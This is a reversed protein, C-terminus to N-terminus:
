PIILVDGPEMEEKDGFVDSNANYIRKWQSEDGYYTRALKYLTDGQQVRHARGSSTKRSKATSVKVVQKQSAVAIDRPGPITLKQGVQLSNQNSLKNAEYILIWKSEEGYYRKALTSLTDNPKVTHTTPLSISQTAPPAEAIVQKQETLSPTEAPPASPTELVGAGPAVAEQAQPAGEAQAVAEEKPQVQEGPHQASAQSQELAQLNLLNASEDEVRAVVPAEQPKQGGKRIGLFVGLVSFMIVGLIIGVQVEVRRIWSKKNM